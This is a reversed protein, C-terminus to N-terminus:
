KTLLWAVTKDGCEAIAKINKPQPLSKGIEWHSIAQPAVGIMEALKQQSLGKEKRIQRIKNGITRKDIAFM